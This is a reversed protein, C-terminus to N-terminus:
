IFSPHQLFRDKQRERKDRYSRRSQRGKRGFLAENRHIGRDPLAFTDAHRVRRRPLRDLPHIQLIGNGCGRRSSRTSGRRKRPCHRSRGGPHRMHRPPRKKDRRRHAHPRGIGTRRATHQILRHAPHTPSRRKCHNRRAANRARHRSSRRDHRASRTHHCANGNHNRPESGNDGARRDNYRFHGGSHKRAYTRDHRSVRGVHPHPTATDHTSAPADSGNTKDDTPGSCSALLAPAMGVAAVALALSILRKYEKKM